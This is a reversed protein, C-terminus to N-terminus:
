GVCSSTIQLWSRCVGESPGVRMKLSANSGCGIRDCEYRVMSAGQSALSEPLSQVRVDPSKLRPLESDRIPEASQRRSRNRASQTGGGPRARGVMTKSTAGDSRLLRLLRHHPNNPELQQTIKNGEIRSSGQGRLRNPVRSTRSHMNRRMTFSTELGVHLHFPSRGSQRYPM